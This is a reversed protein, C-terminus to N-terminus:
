FTILTSSPATSSSSTASPGQYIIQLTKTIESGLLKKARIEFPNLGNQLLVTKQWAGGPGIAIEESNSADGNSLYLADANRVTGQLTITTLETAYPDTGPFTVTISPRGFIKPFQFAFYVIIILAAVAIGWFMKPTAAKMFRNRPLEDEPGSKKVVSDKRLREWWAEGDFNLVKGIRILYGRFYPASPMEDFNGHLMNELHNPSIGTAESLRKLSMGKDKLQEQLFEEFLIEEYNM